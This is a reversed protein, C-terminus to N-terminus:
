HVSCDSCNSSAASGVSTVVSAVTFVNLVFAVAIYHLHLILSSIGFCKNGSVGVGALVPCYYLCKMVKLAAFVM